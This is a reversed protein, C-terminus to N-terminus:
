TSPGACKGDSLNRPRHQCRPLPALLVLDKDPQAERPSLQQVFRESDTCRSLDASKVNGGPLRRPRVILNRSLCAVGAFDEEKALMETELTLLRSTLAASFTPMKSGKHRRYFERKRTRAQFRLRKWSICNM